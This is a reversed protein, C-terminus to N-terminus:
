VSNNNCRLTGFAKENPLPKSTDHAKKFNLAPLLTALCLKLGFSLPRESFLIHGLLHVM